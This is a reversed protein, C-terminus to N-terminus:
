FSTHLSCCFLKMFRYDFLALDDDDTANARWM